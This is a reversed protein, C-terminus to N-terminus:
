ESKKEYRVKPLNKLDAESLGDGVNLNESHMFMRILMELANPRNDRREEGAETRMQHLARMLHELGGERRREM